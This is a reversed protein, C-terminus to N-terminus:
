MGTLISASKLTATATASSHQSLHIHAVSPLPPISGYALIENYFYFEIFDGEKAPIAVNHAVSVADYTYTVTHTAVNRSTSNHVSTEPSDSFFVQIRDKGDIQLLDGNVYVEVWTTLPDRPFPPPPPPPPDAYVRHNSVSAHGSVTAQIQAMATGDLPSIMFARTGTVASIESTFQDPSKVHKSSSSPDAIHLYTTGVVDSFQIQSALGNVDFHVTKYRPIVPVMISDGASYNGSLYDLSLTGDFTMNSIRVPGASIPLNAYVMGNYINPTEGPSLPIDMVQGNAYDYVFKSNAKVDTDVVADEDVYLVVDGKSLEQGLLSGSPRFTVPEGSASPQDSASIRLHGDPSTIGAFLVVPTPEHNAPYVYSQSRGNYRLAKPPDSDEDVIRYATDPLLGSINLIMDSPDTIMIKSSELPADHIRHWARPHESSIYMYSTGAPVEVMRGFDGSFSAILKAPLRDYIKYEPNVHHEGYIDMVVVGAFRDRPEVDVNPVYNDGTVVAYGDPSLDSAANLDDIVRLYPGDTREGYFIPAGGGARPITFRGDIVWDFSVLGDTSSIPTTGAVVNLGNPGPNCACEFIRFGAGYDFNRNNGYPIAMLDYPSEVFWAKAFPSLEGSFALTQTEPSTIEVLVHSYARTKEQFLISGTKNQHDLTVDSNGGLQRVGTLSVSPADDHGTDILDLGNTADDYSYHEFWGPLMISKPDATMTGVSYRPNAKIDNYPVMDDEVFGFRDGMFVKGPDDVFVLRTGLGIGTQVKGAIDDADEDSVIDDGPHVDPCGDDDQFGNITEPAFACSNGDGDTGEDGDPIGDKDTDKYQIDIQFMNGLDTVVWFEPEAAATAFVPASVSLVAFVAASLPLLSLIRM